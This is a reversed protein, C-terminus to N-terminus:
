MEPQTATYVINDGKMMFYLWPVPNGRFNGIPTNGFAGAVSLMGNNSIGYTDKKGNKDPDNNRFKYMADEFEQLTEPVKEIGVNKLWDKRWVMIQPYTGDVNFRRIGYNKGEFKTSNFMVKDTDFKDVLAAYNPAKSRITEETVEGLVGQKVLKEIRDTGSVRMFDPMDGSALKVNLADDYKENDVFWFSFKANYKAEFAKVIASNTDPEALTQYALWEVQVPEAPKETVAATTGQATTTPQEKGSQSACGAFLSALMVLTLLLAVVTRKNSIM